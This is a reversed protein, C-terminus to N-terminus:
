IRNVDRDRDRDREIEDPTYAEADPDFGTWGGAEYDRRREALDVSRSQSLIQEASAVLEDDVKATVLTGGRRVSEAYVHADGESVGSDTLAGIIGGAAGGVAAGALAGAATAALWGAAVVPGVGPIAMIGLGTLLGGAGGVVAGIGAGGASDEAVESRDDDYWNGSNNAVISIDSHPIGTEELENVANSADEYSDFLGTVTKM